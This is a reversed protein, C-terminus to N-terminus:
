LFQSKNKKYTERIETFKKESPAIAKAVAEILTLEPDSLNKHIDNLMADSIKINLTELKSKLVRAEQKQIKMRALALLFADIKVRALSSLFSRKELDEQVRGAFLSFLDLFDKSKSIESDIEAIQARDRDFIDIWEKKAAISSNSQLICLLKELEEKSLQNVFEASREFDWGLSDDLSQIKKFVSERALGTEREKEKKEQFGTYIGQIKDALPILLGLGCVIGGAFEISKYHGFVVGAIGLLVCSVGLLIKQNSNLSTKYSAGACSIVSM